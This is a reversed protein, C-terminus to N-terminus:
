PVAAHFTFPGLNFAIQPKGNSLGLASVRLENTPGSPTYVTEAAWSAGDRVAYVIADPTKSQFAVHIKGDAGLAYHPTTADTKPLAWEDVKWGTAGRVAHKVFAPGKRSQWVLHVVSAGDVFVHPRSGREPDVVETTWAGGTRSAVKLAAADFYALHPTGGPDIALAVDSESAVRDVITTAIAPEVATFGVEHGTGQFARRVWAISARDNADLALTRGSIRTAYLDRITTSTWVNKEWTHLSFHNLSSQSTLIRPSRGDRQAVSPREVAGTIPERFWRGTATRGRLAVATAASGTGSSGEISGFAVITPGHADTGVALPRQYHNGFRFPEVVFRSSAPGAWLCRSSRSPEVVCTEDKGCTTRACTVTRSAGCRDVLVHRACTSDYRECLREDPEPECACVRAGAVACPKGLDIIEVSALEGGAGRGGTVLVKGGPVVSAGHAYRAEKLDGVTQWRATAPDFIELSSLPKWKEDRGGIALVRGDELVLYTADIRGVAMPEVLRWKGSAPSWREVTPRAGRDPQEGGLMLVDGNPLTVFSARFAWERPSGTTRATATKPDILEASSLDELGSRGGVVLVEAGAPGAQASRRSAVLSGSLWADTVPDYARIASQTYGGTTWGGGVVARGTPLIASFPDNSSLAPYKGSTWRATAPSFFSLRSPFARHGVVVDGGARVFATDGPLDPADTMVPVSWTETKPDFREYRPGKADRDIGAMVLVEGSPLTVQAHASRAQAMAPVVRTVDACSAVCIGASADERATADDPTEPTSVDSTVLADAPLDNADPPDAEARDTADTDSTTSDIAAADPAADGPANGPDEPGASRDTGSCAVSAIALFLTAVTDKTM